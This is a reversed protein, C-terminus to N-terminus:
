TESEIGKRKVTVKAIAEHYLCWYNRLWVFCRDWTDFYYRAPGLGSKWHITVKIRKM